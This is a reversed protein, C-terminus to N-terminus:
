SEAHRFTVMRGPYVATKRRKCLAREATAAVIEIHIGMADDLRNMPEAEVAVTMDVNDKRVGVAVDLATRRPDVRLWRSDLM